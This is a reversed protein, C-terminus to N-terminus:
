MALSQYKANTSEALIDGFRISSITHRSVFHVVSKLTQMLNIIDLWTISISNAMTPKLIAYQVFM